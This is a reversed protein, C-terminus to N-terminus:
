CEKKKKNQERKDQMKKAIKVLEEESEIAEIKNTQKIISKKFM